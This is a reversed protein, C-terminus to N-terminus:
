LRGHFIQQFPSAKICETINFYMLKFVSYKKNIRINHCYLMVVLSPIIFQFKFFYDTWSVIKSLTPCLIRECFPKHLYFRLHVKRHQWKSSQANITTKNIAGLQAYLDLLTSFGWFTFIWTFLQFMGRGVSSKTGNPLYFM